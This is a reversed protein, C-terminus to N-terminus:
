TSNFGWKKEILSLVDNSSIITKKKVNLKEINKELIKLVAKEKEIFHVSDAQRSICELGFSGTGAYLDLINSQKFQFLIRNSHTLM